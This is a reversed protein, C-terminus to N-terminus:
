GTQRRRASKGEWGETLERSLRRDPAGYSLRWSELEEISLHAVKRRGCWIEVAFTRAVGVAAAIAAEDTDREIGHCDFIVDAASLLYVRYYAM